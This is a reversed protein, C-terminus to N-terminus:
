SGKVRSLGNALGLSTVNVDEISNWVSFLISCNDTNYIL